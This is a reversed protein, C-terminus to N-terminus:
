VASPSKQTVTLNSAARDNTAVEVTQAPGDLELWLKNLIDRGLIIETGRPDAIV